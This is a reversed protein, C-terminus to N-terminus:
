LSTLLQKLEPICSGCNTGCRLEKGLTEVSNAGAAIAGRIREESVQFCSCIIRQSNVASTEQRALLRWSQPNVQHDFLTQLWTADPIGSRQPSAFVAHEIRSDKCLLARYDGSVTNSLEIKELGQTLADLWHQWTRGNDESPAATDALLYLQGDSLPTHVWYSFSSTDIPTRSLLAVWRQAKVPKLGVQAFKSEPQGSIPDTVAAILRAVRGDSAFQDNWHIPVFVDGDRMGADIHAQLVLAESGGGSTHTHVQVLDGERIGKSQADRPNL